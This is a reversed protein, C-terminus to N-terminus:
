VPSSMYDDVLITCGIQGAISHLAALPSAPAELHERVQRVAWGSVEPFLKTATKM